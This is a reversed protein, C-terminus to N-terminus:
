QYGEELLLLMMTQEEVAAKAAQQNERMQRMQEMQMRELEMRQALSGPDCYSWQRKVQGSDYYPNYIHDDTFTDAM